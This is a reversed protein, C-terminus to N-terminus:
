VAERGRGRRSLFFVFGVLSTVVSIVYTLFEMTFADARNIGASAFLVIGLGERVGLGNITVPPIMALSLLPVFVFFQAVVATGLAVGLGAGVLIHTAVRLTQIVLSLGVLRLVLGRRGKFPSLHDIISTARADISLPRIRLVVRRLWNGLPKYFYFGLAPVMCGVFIISYYGYPSAGRTGMLGFAAVLAMLCLSFIGLLRDLLTVAIVQYVSSGVRTVDYVKVADGGINAPLFNNFFLGVFYFRFTRPFSLDIGSSRLLLHWQYAGLVNSVFFCLMAGVVLGVDLRGVVASLEELSIKRLLFIMLATSVAVKVLARTLSSRPAASAMAM